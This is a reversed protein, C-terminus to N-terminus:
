HLLVEHVSYLSRLFPLTRPVRRANPGRPGPFAALPAPGERVSQAPAERRSVPGADVREARRQVGERLREATCYMVSIRTKHFFVSSHPPAIAVECKVECVPNHQKFLRLIFEEQSTELVRCTPPM